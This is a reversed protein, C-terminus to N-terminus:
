HFRVESMEPLQRTGTATFGRFEANIYSVNFETVM